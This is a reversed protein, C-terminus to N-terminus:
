GRRRLRLRPPREGSRYRFFSDIAASVLIALAFTIGTAVISGTAAAAVLALAASALLLWVGRWDILPRRV